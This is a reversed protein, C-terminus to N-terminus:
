FISFVFIKIVVPLKIFTSLMASHELPLKQGANLSLWDKFGKKPRKSTLRKVCAKSNVNSFSDTFLVIVSDTKTKNTQNSEKCGM